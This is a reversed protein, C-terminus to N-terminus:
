ELEREAPELLRAQAETKYIYGPRTFDNPLASKHYQHLCYVDEPTRCWYKPDLCKERLHVDQDLWLHGEPDDRFWGFWDWNKRYNGTIHSLLGATTQETYPKPIKTPNDEWGPLMLFSTEREDMFYTFISARSTESCDLMKQVIDKHSVIEDMMSFIVYEGMSAKGYKNWIRNINQHADEKYFTIPLRDDFGRAIFELEFNKTANDVIIFELEPYNIRSWAKLSNKLHEPRNAISMIISVFPFNM